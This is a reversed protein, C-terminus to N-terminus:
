FRYTEGGFFLTCSIGYAQLHHNFCFMANFTPATEIAPLYVTRVIANHDFRMSCACDRDLINTQPVPRENKDLM